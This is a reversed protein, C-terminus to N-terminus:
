SGPLNGFPDSKATSPCDKINIIRPNGDGREIEGKAPLVSFTPQGRLELGEGGFGLGPQALIQVGERLCLPFRVGDRSREGRGM